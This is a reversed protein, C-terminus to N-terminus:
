ALGAGLGALLDPFPSRSEDVGTQMDGGYAVHVLVLHLGSVTVAQHDDWAADCEVCTEPARLKVARWTFPGYDTSGTRAPGVGGDGLDVVPHTADVPRTCDALWGTVTRYAADVAADDAFRLVATGAWAGLRGDAGRAEFRRYDAAVPGLSALQDAQCALTAAPADPVTEFEEVGTADRLTREDLLYTPGPDVVDGPGPAAPSGDCDVTSTADAFPCMAAAIVAYDRAEASAVDRVGARTAGFEADLGMTLIANGVRAVVWHTALTSKRGDTYGHSVAALLDDAPLGADAAPSREWRDTSIGDDYQHVPCRELEGTALLMAEHAASSDEYVVVERSYGYGPGTHVVQLLDTRGPEIWGPDDHCPDFLRPRGLDRRTQQQTDVDEAPVGELLPFGAPVSTAQAAGPAPAAPTSGATGDPSPAQTAAPPEPASAGTRGLGLAVGGAVAAVALTAAATTAAARRTRRRDGLRRVEAAPLRDVPEGEHRLADFPDSM